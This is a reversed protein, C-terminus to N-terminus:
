DFSYAVLPQSIFLRDIIKQNKRSKALLATTTPMRGTRRPGTKRREKKPGPTADSIKQHARFPEVVRVPCQLPLQMFMITIFLASPAVVSSGTPFTVSFEAPMTLSGKPGSDTALKSRLPEFRTTWSLDPSCSVSALKKWVAASPERLSSISSSELPTSHHPWYLEGQDPKEKASILAASSNIPTSGPPPASGTQNNAPKAASPMPAAM